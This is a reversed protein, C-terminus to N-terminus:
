ATDIQRPSVFSGQQGGFPLAPWNTILSGFQLTIYNMIMSLIPKLQFYIEISLSADEEILQNQENRVYLASLPVNRLIV